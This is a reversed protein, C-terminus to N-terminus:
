IETDYKCKKVEKIKSKTVFLASRTKDGGLHISLMNDVFQDCINEFDENLQKETENIDKNQSVLCM